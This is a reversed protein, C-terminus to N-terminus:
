SRCPSVILRLEGHGDPGSTTEIGKGLERRLGGEDIGWGEVTIGFIEPLSDFLRKREGKNRALLEERCRGCPSGEELAIITGTWDHLPRLRRTFDSRLVIDHVRRLEAICAIRSVCERSPRADLLRSLLLTREDTLIVGADICRRVDACSLHEITGDERIWGDLISSGLYACNYLALPLLTPTDTLRALNVIGIYHTPELPIQSVPSLSSYSSFSTPFNCERM